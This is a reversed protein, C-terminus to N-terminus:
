ARDVLLLIGGLLAFLAGLIAVVDGRFGLVLAGVIALVVLIVGSALTYEKQFGGGLLAFFLILAGVVFEEIAAGTLSLGLRPNQTLVADVVGLILTILGALVILGGGVLGFLRGLSRPKV